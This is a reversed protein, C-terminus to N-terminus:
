DWRRKRACHSIRFDLHGAVYNVSVQLVKPDQVKEVEVIKEVVKTGSAKAVEEAKQRAAQKGCGMWPLM